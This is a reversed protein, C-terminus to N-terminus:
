TKDRIEKSTFNEQQARPSCLWSQFLIKWRWHLSLFHLLFRASTEMPRSAAFLFHILPFICESVKEQIAQKERRMIFVSRRFKRVKYPFRSLILFFTVLFVFNNKYKYDLLYILFDDNPQCRIFFCYFGYLIFIKKSAM